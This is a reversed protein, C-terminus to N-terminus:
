FLTQLILILIISFQYIKNSNTDYDPSVDIINENGNIQQDLQSSILINVGGVTLISADTIQNINKQSIRNLNDKLISDSRLLRQNLLQDIKNDGQIIQDCQDQIKYVIQSCCVKENTGPKTPSVGHNQFAALIKQVIKQYCTKDLFYYSFIEEIMSAIGPNENNGKITVLNSFCEISSDIQSQYKTASEQNILLSRTNDFYNSINDIGSCASCLAGRLFQTATTQFQKNCKSLNNILIQLQKLNINQKLNDIQEPKQIDPKMQCDCKQIQQVVVKFLKVAINSQKQIQQAKFLAMKDLFDSMKKKNCCSEQGEFQSCIGLANQDSKTPKSNKFDKNFRDIADIAQKNNNGVITKLINIMKNIAPHNECNNQQQISISLFLMIFILRFTVQKKQSIKQYRM